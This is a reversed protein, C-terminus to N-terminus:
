VTLNEAKMQSVIYSKLEPMMAGNLIQTTKTRACAFRKAIQSDPFMAPYMKSLHDALSFPLNHQVILNVHLLEAKMVSLGLQSKLFSSKLLAKSLKLITITFVRQLLIVTVNFMKRKWTHVLCQKRVRSVIFLKNTIIQLSYQINKRGHLIM